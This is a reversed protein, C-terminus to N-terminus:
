HKEEASSSCQELAKEIAQFDPLRGPDACIERHRIEGHRDIVFAARKAVGRMRFLPFEDYLVDYQRAVSKNFDALLEFQYNKAERFKKLAFMSDVSIGFVTADLRNYQQMKDRISCLEATCVDSFALPFFILVVHSTKLTEHLSIPQNETNFLTFDPAQNGVDVSKNEALRRQLSQRLKESYPTFPDKLMNGNTSFEFQFSLNDPCYFVGRRTKSLLVDILLSDSQDSTGGGDTKVPSRDFM